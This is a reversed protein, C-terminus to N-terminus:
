YACIGRVFLAGCSYGDDEYGLWRKSAGLILPFFRLVMPAFWDFLMFDRFVLVM